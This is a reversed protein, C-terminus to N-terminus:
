FVIIGSEGREFCYVKLACWVTLVIYVGVTLFGQIDWIFVFPRLGAYAWQEIGWLYLGWSATRYILYKRNEKRKRVFLQIYVRLSLCLVLLFALLFVLGELRYYSIFGAFGTYWKGTAMDQRYIGVKVFKSLLWLVTMLLTLVASVWICITEPKVPAKKQSERSESDLEDKLLYDLSCDFIRSIRIVNDLDPMAGMEWKSIAQRSVNLQEALKEQSLHHQKRLQQLKEGFTM